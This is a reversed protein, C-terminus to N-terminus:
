TDTHRDIGKRHDRVGQPCQHARQRALAVRRNLIGARSPLLVILKVVQQLLELARLKAPPGFPKIALLHLQRQLIDLCRDGLLIACSSMFSVVSVPRHWPPPPVGGLTEVYDGGLVLHDHRM